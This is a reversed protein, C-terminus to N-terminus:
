HANRAAPRSREGSGAVAAGTEVPPRRAFERAGDFLLEVEENV